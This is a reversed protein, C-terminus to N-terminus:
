TASRAALRRSLALPAAPDGTQFNLSLASTDGTTGSAFEFTSTVANYSVSVGFRQDEMDRISNGNPIVNAGSGDVNDTGLATPITSLQFLNNTGTPGAELSVTAAVAEPTYSFNRNVRDYAVALTGAGLM